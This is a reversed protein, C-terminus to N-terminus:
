LTSVTMEFAGFAQRVSAEVIDAYQSGWDSSVAESKTRVASDFSQSATLASEYNGLFYEIADPILWWKSRHYGTQPAGLYNIALDRQFGVAFTVSGSTVTGLDQALAALNTGTCTSPDGLAGASTFKSYITAPVNCGYTLGDGTTTGFLISGYTSMDSSETYCEQDSNYYWFFGATGSTTYNLGAAGGQATWTYDIGSMVQVDTADANSVSVTLYSYPLSHNAYDSPGPLVPSFFDLTVDASGATLSIVTHTSTYNVGKTTAASAGSVGDPAGFLTYTTGGIRALVPWTLKQGAWFEPQATAADSVQSGPVWTSLYPSKVALPYSPLSVTGAFATSILSAFALACSIIFKNM